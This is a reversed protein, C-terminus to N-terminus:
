KSVLIKGTKVYKNSTIIYIYIGSNLESVDIKNNHKLNNLRMIPKGNISFLEITVNKIGIVLQFDINLVSKTPNPYVSVESHNNDNEIEETNVWCDWPTTCGMSDVKIIWVDQTGTDPLVPLCYGAGLFGGDSTPLVDYLTNHSDAGMCIGYQRYWISDYSSDVRLLYGMTFPETEFDTENTKGSVIYGNTQTSKINTVTRHILPDCYQNQAVIIGNNSIELLQVRSKYIDYYISDVDIRSACIIKGSPSNCLIASGDQYPGGVNLEWEVNGLNDTKIIYPDGISVGYPGLVWRYNGIAYGGDSTQIISVGHIYHTSDTFIREWIKNGLTDTKILFTGITQYEDRQFTGTFIFGDDTDIFNRCIYVTDYPANVKSFYSTWLTDFSSNYKTLFSESYSIDNNFNTKKSGTSYYANNSSILSGRDAFFYRSITDGWTKTWLLNGEFDVKAIALRHWFSALSDGTAGNVIYGDSIEIANVSGDFEWPYQFNFRENFYSQSFTLNAVIVFVIIGIYKM